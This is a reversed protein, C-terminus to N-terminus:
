KIKNRELFDHAISKSNETYTSSTKYTGDNQVPSVGMIQAKESMSVETSGNVLEGMLGTGDTTHNLSLNHGLEHIVVENFSGDKITGVEVASTRGGKEALGVPDIAGGDGNYDAEPIDNAIVMVHDNEGVDDLSEVVEFEVTVNTIRTETDPVVDVVGDQVARGGLTKTLDIKGKGGSFMTNSLDAGNSNVVKLTITISAERTTYNPNNRNTNSVTTIVDPAESVMMGDPDVFSIPNNLTYSYPSSRFYADAAPDIMNWRGLEPDYM